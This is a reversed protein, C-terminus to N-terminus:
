YLVILEAHLYFHHATRARKDLRWSRFLQDLELLSEMINLYVIETLDVYDIHHSEHQICWYLM